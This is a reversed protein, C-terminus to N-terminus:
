SSFKLLMKINHEEWYVSDDIGTCKDYELEKSIHSNALTSYEVVM